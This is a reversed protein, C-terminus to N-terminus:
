YKGMSLFLLLFVHNNLNLQRYDCTWQILQAERLFVYCVKHPPDDDSESLGVQEGTLGLLEEQLSKDSDVDMNDQM